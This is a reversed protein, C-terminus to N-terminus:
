CIRPLQEGSPMDVIRKTGIATEMVVRGPHKEVIQGIITSNKGEPVKKMTELVQDAVSAAVVVLVKGENAIYLPDLGLIASIAKVQENILINDEQLFVGLNAAEAIENLTAALGGRTPDRLVHVESTTDLIAGILKNLAACDSVIDTEFELGKRKTMVAIGHDAISGNLLIVDGVKVNAPSIHIGERVLGIGSTNIFLGDAAGNEVVKTDGTVLQVGAYDAAKKMSAIIQQLQDM